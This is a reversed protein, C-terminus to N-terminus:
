CATIDERAHDKYTQLRCLIYCAFIFYSQGKNLAIM